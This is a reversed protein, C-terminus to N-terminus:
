PAEGEGFGDLQPLMGEVAIELFAQAVDPDFQSGANDRIEGLAFSLSRAPRYARASM